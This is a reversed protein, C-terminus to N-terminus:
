DRYGPRHGQYLKERPNFAGENFGKKAKKKGRVRCTPNALRENQNGEGQAIASIM